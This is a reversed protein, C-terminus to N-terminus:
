RQLSTSDIWVGRFRKRRPDKLRKCEHGDVRRTGDDSLLMVHALADTSFFGEPNLAGFDHSVRRWARAGDWVYLHARRRDGVDGAIILYRGRWLSLARVGLGGLDLRVPPGFSPPAIGRVVEEPNLLTAILAKGDPVPSRFGIFVGQEARATMGEMNLGGEDKPARVSAAALGFTAYRPDAILDELLREYPVGVIEFPREADPVETAFFRHREPKLKGSASRGHSTLWFALAGLRTAAEIDTEPADKGHKAALRLGPSLDVSRLPSGGRRADYVRIVNDEDDAVAFLEASLAVAGSADCMGSFTVVGPLQPAVPSCGLLLASLWFM